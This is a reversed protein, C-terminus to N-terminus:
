IYEGGTNIVQESRKMWDLFVRVLEEESISNLIETVKRLLDEKTREHCLALRGKLYGFLYFDSPVL